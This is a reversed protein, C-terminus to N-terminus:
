VSGGVSFDMECKFQSRQMVVPVYLVYCCQLPSVALLVSPGAAGLTAFM